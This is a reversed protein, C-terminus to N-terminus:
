DFLNLQNSTFGLINNVEKEIAQQYYKYNIDYDYFKNKLEMKNFMTTMWPGAELQIIRGDNKNVKVLKAGNNSVYYRNIKQQNDSQVTGDKVYEAKVQWGSNTKSGICYDLINTNEKLYNM